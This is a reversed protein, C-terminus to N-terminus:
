AKPILFRFVILWGMLWSAARQTIKETTEKIVNKM